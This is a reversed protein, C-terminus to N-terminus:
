QSRGPRRLVKTHDRERAEALRRKPLLTMLQHQISEQIEYVDMSLKEMGSLIKDMKKGDSPSGSNWLQSVKKFQQWIQIAKIFVLPPAPYFFLMDSTADIFDNAALALGQAGLILSLVFLQKISLM